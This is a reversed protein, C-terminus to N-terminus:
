CLIGKWRLLRETLENGEIGLLKRPFVGDMTEYAAARHEVEIRKGNDKCAAGPVIM